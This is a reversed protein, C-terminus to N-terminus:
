SFLQMLHSQASNMQDVRIKLREILYALGKRSIVSGFESRQTTVLSVGEAVIDFIVFHDGKQRVMYDVKIAPQNLRAIESQVRYENDEQSTVSLIIIKENNYERFKPVYNGILFKQYLDLYAVRQEESAGKWYKGLVFRGIWQTDVSRIFLKALESEKQTANLQNDTIVQLANDTLNSVFKEAQGVSAQSNPAIWIISLLLTLVVARFAYKM